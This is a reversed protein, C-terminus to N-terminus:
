HFLLSFSSFLIMGWVIPYSNKRMLRFRNNWERRVEKKAISFQRIAMIKYILKDKGNIAKLVKEKKKNQEM